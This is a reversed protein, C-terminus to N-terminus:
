SRESDSHKRLLDDYFLPWNLLNYDANCCHFTANCYYEIYENRENRMIPRKEVNLNM